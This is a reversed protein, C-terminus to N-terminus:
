ISTSWFDEQVEINQSDTKRFNGTMPSIKGNKFRRNNGHNAIGAALAVALGVAAQLKLFIAAYWAPAAADMTITYHDAPILPIFQM